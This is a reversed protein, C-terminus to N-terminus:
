GSKALQDLVLNKKLGQAMQTMPVGQIYSDLRTVFKSHPRNRRYAPQRPPHHLYKEMLSLDPSVLIAASYYGFGKTRYFSAGGVKRNDLVLDSIGDQYLGTLGMSNFGRILLDNCQNFLSQIGSFGQAPFAISVILNGPDLFVSCGGGMRRYVPIKDERCFPLRIEESLNSGQGAVVAKFPFPYIKFKPLNSRKVWELLDVDFYFSPVPSTLHDPM